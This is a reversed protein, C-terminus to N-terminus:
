KIIFLLFCYQWMLLLSPKPLPQSLVTHKRNIFTMVNGRHTKQLEIFAPYFEPSWFFFFPVQFKAVYQMHNSPKLLYPMFTALSYIFPIFLPFLSLGPQNVHSRTTCSTIRKRNEDQVDTIVSCAQLVVNQGTEGITGKRVASGSTKLFRRWESCFLIFCVPFAAMLELAGLMHFESRTCSPSGDAVSVIFIFFIAKFCHNAKKSNNESM